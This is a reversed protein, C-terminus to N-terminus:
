SRCAGTLEKLFTEVGDLGSAELTDIVASGVVAIEAGASKILEIHQGSSVGFGIAVPQNTVTKIKAVEDGLHKALEAKAGTVGTRSPLYLISRSTASIEKLREPANEPALVAVIPIGAAESAAYFHEFEEEALPMDPVILGKAGAAVAAECFAKPGMAHVINYYTMFLLPIDVEAALERMVDFCQQPEVGNQLAETSAKMITPGDAIPDTFPIQLEIFDVGTRAMTRVLDRSEDLSPYGIVIHTMLGIRNDEAIRELQRDITTM